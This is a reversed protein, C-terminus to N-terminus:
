VGQVIGALMALIQFEFNAKMGFLASGVIVVGIISLFNISERLVLRGLIISIIVGVATSTFSSFTSGFSLSGVVLIQGLTFFTPRLLNALKFEALVKDFRSFPLLLNGAILSIYPLALIPHAPHAQKVSEYTLAAVFGYTFIIFVDFYSSTIKM